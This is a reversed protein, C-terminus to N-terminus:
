FTFLSSMDVAIPPVFLFPTVVLPIGGVCLYVARVRDIEMSIGRQHGPALSDM